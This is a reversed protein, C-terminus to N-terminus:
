LQSLVDVVHVSRHNKIIFESKEDNKVARRPCSVKLRALRPVASLKAGIEM